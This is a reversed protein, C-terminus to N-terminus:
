SINGGHRRMAILFSSLTLVISRWSKRGSPMKKRCQFICMKFSRWPIHRPVTTLLCRKMPFSTSSLIAVLTTTTSILVWLIISVYLNLRHAIGRRLQNPLLTRIHASIFPIAFLGFLALNRIALWAMISIGAIVFVHALRIGRWNRVAVFIFLLVCVSFVVKFIFFNPDAILKEMFWVPQNEALRYGYNGFITVAATFARYGFPNLLMAGVTLVFIGALRFFVARRILLSELLFAGVLLPGLLFYVHLNVWFMEIVPLFWLGLISMRAQPQERFRSLLFFFLGAFLYSIVEPRVETREALLPLTALAVFGVIGWNAYVRGALLFIALAAFSLLIFSLHLGTFGFFTWVFYSLVGSAWHHNVWQFNPHTYSYVNQSLIPSNQLIMEGNKIHRGLDAPVLDIPHSLFLGYLIFLFACLIIASSHRFLYAFFPKQMWVPDKKLREELASQM